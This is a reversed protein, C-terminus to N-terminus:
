KPINANPLGKKFSISVRSYISEQIFSLLEHNAYFFHNITYTQQSIASAGQLQMLISDTTPQSSVGWTSLRRGTLKPGMELPHVGLAVIQMLLELILM